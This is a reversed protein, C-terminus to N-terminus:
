GGDGLVECSVSCYIEEAIRRVLKERVETKGNNSMYRYVMDELRSLSYEGFQDRWNHIDRAFRIIIEYALETM